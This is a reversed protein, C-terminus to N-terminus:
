ARFIPLISPIKVGAGSSVPRLHCGDAAPNIRNGNTMNKRDSAIKRGDRGM